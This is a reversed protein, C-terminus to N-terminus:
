NVTTTERKFGSVFNSISVGETVMVGGSPDRATGQVTGAGGLEEGRAETGGFVCICTTTLVAM